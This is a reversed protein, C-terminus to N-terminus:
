DLLSITTLSQVPDFLDVPNYNIYMDNTLISIFISIKAMQVIWLIFSILTDIHKYYQFYM